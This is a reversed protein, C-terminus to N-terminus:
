LDKKAEELSWIAENIDQLMTKGGSRDGAALLKKIAHSLQELEPDFSNLVDYADFKGEVAKGNEIRVTALMRRTMKKLYRNVRPTVPPMEQVAVDEKGSPLWWKENTSM